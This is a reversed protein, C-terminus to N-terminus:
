KLQYKGAERDASEVAHDARNTRPQRDAFKVLYGCLLFVFTCHYAQCLFPLAGDGYKKHIDRVEDCSPADESGHYGCM